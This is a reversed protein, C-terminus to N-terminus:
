RHLTHVPYGSFRKAHRTITIARLSSVVTQRLLAQEIQQYHEDSTVCLDLTYDYNGSIKYCAIIADTSQVYAEFQAMHEQQHEALTVEVMMQTMHQIKEIDISAGCGRIIKQDWLKKVRSLCASPSLCVRDALAKNSIRGHTQIVELIRISIKDIPLSQRINKVKTIEISIFNVIKLPQQSYCTPM